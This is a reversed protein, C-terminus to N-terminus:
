KVVLVATKANQVVNHSVSGLFFEQIAGLGRSGIVILDCHHEEAYELITRAANGEKFVVSARPLDKIKEEAKKVVKKAREFFENVMNTPLAVLAEGIIYNPLQYVHIVTLSAYPETKALSIAQNLAKESHNSGDYAVLIKRFPM